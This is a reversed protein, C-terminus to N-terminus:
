SLCRSSFWPTRRQTCTCRFHRNTVSTWRGDHAGPEHFPLPELESNTAFAIVSKIWHLAPRHRFRWTIDVNKECASRISHSIYISRHLPRSHCVRFNRYTHLVTMFMEPRVSPLLSLTSNIRMASPLSTKLQSGRGPAREGEIKSLLVGYRSICSLPPPNAAADSIM